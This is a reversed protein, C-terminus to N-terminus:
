SQQCRISERIFRDILSQNTLRRREERAKSGINDIRKAPTLRSPLPSHAYNPLHTGFPGDHTRTKLQDVMNQMEKRAAQQKALKAERKLKRKKEADADLEAKKDQFEKYIAKVDDAPGAHRMSVRRPSQSSNSSRPKLSLTGSRTRTTSTSKADFDALNNAAQAAAEREALKIRKKEAVDDLEAKEAVFKTHIADVDPEDAPGARHRQMSVRRQTKGSSPPKSRSPMTM